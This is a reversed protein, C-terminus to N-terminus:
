MIADSQTMIVYCLRIELKSHHIKPDKYQPHVLLRPQDFHFKQHNHRINRRHTM